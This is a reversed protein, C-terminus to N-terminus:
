GLAQLGARNVDLAGDFIVWLPEREPGLQAQGRQLAEPRALEAVHQRGLSAEGPDDLLLGLLRRLQEARDRIERDDGPITLEDVDQHRGDERRGGELLLEARRQDRELQPAEVGRRGEFAQEPAFITGDTELHIQIRRRQVRHAAQLGVRQHQRADVRDLQAHVVRQGQRHGIRVGPELAVEPDLEVRPEDLHLRHTRHRREGVVHQPAQAPGEQVGLEEALDDRRLAEHEAPERDEAGDLHSLALHERRQLPVQDVFFRDDRVDAELGELLLQPRQEPPGLQAEAQGRELAVLHENEVVAGFALVRADEGVRPVQRGGGEGAGNVLTRDDLALGQDDLVEGGPGAPGRDLVVDDAAPEAVDDDRGQVVLVARELEARRARPVEVGRM